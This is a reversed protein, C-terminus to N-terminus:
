CRQRARAAGALMFALGFLAISAPEPVPTGPDRFGRAMTVFNGDPAVQLAFYGQATWFAPDYEQHVFCGETYTPDFGFALGSATSIGPDVCIPGAVAVGPAGVFGLAADWFSHGQYDGIALSGGGAVYAAVAASDLPNLSSGPDSCCTGPSDVYIGSYNSLTATSLFAFNQFDFTRPGTYNLTARSYDNLFLIPKSPDGAGLQNMVPNIFSQDSHFGVADTGLIFISGAFASQGTFLAALFLMAAYIFKRFNYFKM